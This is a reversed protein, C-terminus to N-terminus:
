NVYLLLAAVCVLNEIVGALSLNSGRCVYSVAKEPENGWWTRSQKGPLRSVSVSVWEQKLCPAGEGRHVQEGRGPCQRRLCSESSM